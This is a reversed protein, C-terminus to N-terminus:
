VLLYCHFEGGIIRSVPKAAFTETHKHVPTNIGCASDVFLFKPAVIRRLFNVLTVTFYEVRYFKIRRAPQIHNLVATHVIQDKRDFMVISETHKVCFIGIVVNHIRRVASVNSCHQSFLAM